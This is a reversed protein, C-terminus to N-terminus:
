GPHVSVLFYGHSFCSSTAKEFMRCHGPRAAEDHVRAKPALSAEADGDDADVAPALLWMPPKAPRLVADHRVDAVDVRRTESLCAMTLRRVGLATAPRLEHLVQAADHFVVCRDVDDADGRRVVPVRQGGDPRHLRALVDVDLLRDAVVDAFAALMTSAARLYLLIQWVPVCLRMAARAHALRM